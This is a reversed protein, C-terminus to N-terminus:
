FLMNRIKPRNELCKVTFCYKKRVQSICGKEKATSITYKDSM